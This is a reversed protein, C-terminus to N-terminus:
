KLTMIEAMGMVPWDPGDAYTITTALNRIIFKNQLKNNIFSETPVYRKKGNEVYYVKVDGQYSFASGTPHSASNIPAGVQYNIFFAPEVDVVRKAWDSGYLSVALQESNVWKLVGYPEVAYVRSDTQIKVLYTGPRMTVNSGLPIASMLSSSITQIGSFDPYYSSYVEVNPFAHRRNDQDIFYISGSNALKILSGITVEKPLAPAPVPDQLILGSEGEPMTLKAVYDIADSIVDTVFGSANRFKAYVIKSGYGDTLPWTKTTAFTEWVAGSFDANNSIMMETVNTAYLTLTVTQSDTQAAGSAIIMTPATPAKADPSAYGGHGISPPYTYFELANMFNMDPSGGFDIKTGTQLDVVFLEAYVSSSNCDNVQAFFLNGTTDMTAAGIGCYSKSPNTFTFNNSWLTSIVSGDTANVKSLRDRSDILYLNNDADFANGGGYATDTTGGVSVAQGTNKDITFLEYYSNQDWGYLQGASDFSLDGIVLDESGNNIKGILTAAGTNIDVTFLSRMSNDGSDRNGTNAYIKNDTPDVALSTIYYGGLSGITRTVLGTEADIEKLVGYNTGAGDVGLLVTQGQSVKTWTASATGRNSAINDCAVDITHSGDALGTLSDTHLTLGTNAMPTESGGDLSYYCTANELTQVILPTAMKTSGGDVPYNITVIPSDINGIYIGWIEPYDTGGSLTAPFATYDYPFYLGVGPVAVNVYGGVAATSDTQFAIWYTGADLTVSVPSNILSLWSSNASTTIPNSEWKLQKPSSNDYIAVRVTADFASGKQQIYMKAVNFSDIPSSLDARYAVIYGKQSYSYKNLEGISSGFMIYGKATDIALGKGSFYGGLIPMSGFYGLDRGFGVDVKNVSGGLIFYAYGANEDIVGSPSFASDNSMAFPSGVRTMSPLSIRNLNQQYYGVGSNYSVSLVYMMSNHLDFVAPGCTQEPVASCAASVLPDSFNNLDIKYIYNSSPAINCSFYLNSNVIGASNQSPKCDLIKESDVGFTPDLIVKTVKEEATASDNIFYAVGNTVDIASSVVGDVSLNISDVQQFTSGIGIDVKVIEAPDASSVFYAFGRTTDIVGSVIPTTVALSIKEEIVGSSLNYKGVFSNALGEKTYAFYAYGNASDVLITDVNQPASDLLLSSQLSFSPSLSTKAITTPVGGAAFYLKHGAIDIGWASMDQGVGLSIEDIKAKDTLDVVIAKGSSTGVYGLHHLPDTPDIALVGTIYDGSVAPSFDFSYSLDNTFTTLDVRRLINSYQWKVYLSAGDEIGMIRGSTDSGFDLSAVELFTALDIKKIYRTSSVYLQQNTIDIQMWSYSYGWFYLHGVRAFGSPDINIRTVQVDSGSPGYNNVTYAYNHASDVVISNAGDNANAVIEADFTDNSMNFRVYKKTSSNLTAFCYIFNHLQDIECNNLQYGSAYEFIDERTPPDTTLDVKILANMVYGDRALLGYGIGSDADVMLKSIRSESLYIKGSNLLKMDWLANNPSGPTTNGFITSAAKAQNRDALLVSFVIQNIVLVLALAIYIAVFKKNIM